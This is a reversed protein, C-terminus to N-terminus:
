EDDISVVVSKINKESKKLDIYKLFEEFTNNNIHKNDYSKMLKLFNQHFNILHSKDLSTFYLNLNKDIFSLNGNNKIYSFIISVLLSNNTKAECMKNILFIINKINGGQTLYINIVAGIDENTYNYAIWKTVSTRINEFLGGFDVYARLRFLFYSSDINGLSKELSKKINVLAGDSNLYMYLVNNKKKLSDVIDTNYDREKKSKLDLFLGIIYIFNDSEVNKEMWDDLKIATASTLLYAHFISEYFNSKANQNIWNELTSRLRNEVKQVDGSYKLYYYLVQGVQYDTNVWTLIKELTGGYKFYYDITKRSEKQRSHKRHMTLERKIAMDIDDLSGGSDLFLAISTRLNRNDCNQNIWVVVLDRIPEIVGGAQTYGRFVRYFGASDSNQLITIIKEVEFLNLDAKKEILASVSYSNDVDIHQIVARGNDKLVTNENKLYSHILFSKRISDVRNGYNELWYSFYYEIEDFFGDSKLFATMVFDAYLSKGHAQIWEIALDNINSSFNQKSFFKYHKPILFSGIYQHKFWNINEDIQIWDIYLKEIDEIDECEDKIIRLLLNIYEFSTKEFLIHENIFSIKEIDSLLQSYYFIHKVKEIEFVKNSFIKKLIVNKKFLVSKDYIRDLMRFVYEFKSHEIAFNFIDEIEQKLRRDKKFFPKKFYQIFLEDFITDNYASKFVNLDDDYEIWGDDELLEIIEKQSNNIVNQSLPMSGLLRFVNADINVFSDKREAITLSFRKAIYDGFGNVDHFVMSGNKTLGQLLFVAFSPKGALEKFKSYKELDLDINQTLFVKHVVFKLYQKEIERDLGIDIVDINEHRIENNLLYSSRANAVVKIKVNPYERLLVDIINEDFHSNEEVYDFLFCYKKRNDLKWTEWGKFDSFIQYTKWGNQQAKRGLELMLRTKGVGGEGSVLLGKCQSDDFLNEYFDNESNFEDGFGYKSKYQSRSIYPLIKNSLYQKYKSLEDKADTLETVGYPLKLKINNKIKSIDNVIKLALADYYLAKKEKLQENDEIAGAKCALVDYKFKPFLKEIDAYITKQDEEIEKIFDNVLDYDHYEIDRPFIYVLLSKDLEVAKRYEMHVLSINTSEVTNGYRSGLFLIVLDSEELRKLSIDISGMNQPDGYDLSIDNLEKDKNMEIKLAKREETFGLAFDDIFSSSIFVNIVDM